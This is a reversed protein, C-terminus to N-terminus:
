GQGAVPAAASASVLRRVSDLQAAVARIRVEDGGAVEACMWGRYGVAALADAVGPWRVDGALLDADLAGWPGPGWTAVLEDHDGYRTAPTMALAASFDKVDLRVIRDGVVEIWHEPWGYRMANGTDLHVGFPPSGLDDILASLDAPSLLWGNWLNEM